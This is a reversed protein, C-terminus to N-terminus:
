RLFMKVRAVGRQSTTPLTLFSVNRAKPAGSNAHTFVLGVAKSNSRREESVPRSPM